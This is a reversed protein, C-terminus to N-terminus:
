PKPPLRLEVLRNWLSEWIQRREQQTLTRKLKAKYKLVAQGALFGWSGKKQEMWNTVSEAHDTITSDIVEQIVLPEM